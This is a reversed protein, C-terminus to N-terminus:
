SNMIKNKQLYSYVATSLDYYKQAMMLCRLYFNLFNCREYYKTHNNLVEVLEDCM